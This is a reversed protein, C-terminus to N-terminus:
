IDKREERLRRRRKRRREMRKEEETQERTMRPELINRIAKDAAEGMLIVYGESQNSNQKNKNNDSMKAGGYREM